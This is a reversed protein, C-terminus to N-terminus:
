STGASSQSWARRAATPSPPAQWGELWGGWFAASADTGVRLGARPLPLQERDQQRIGRARTHLPLGGSPLDRQRTEQQADIDLQGATSGGASVDDCRAVSERKRPHGEANKRRRLWPPRTRQALQQQSIEATLASHLSVIREKARATLVLADGLALLTALLLHSHQM